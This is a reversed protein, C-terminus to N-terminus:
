SRKKRRGMLGALCGGALVAGLTNFWPGPFAPAGGTGLCVATLLGCLAAGTLGGAILTGGGSRRVATRGGMLACLGALLSLVLAPAKAPLVGGLILGAAALTLALVLILSIGAGLLVATPLSGPAKPKKKAEM